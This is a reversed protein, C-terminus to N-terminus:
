IVMEREGAVESLKVSYAKSVGDDQMTIGYLVDAQAMTERNHSIVICQTAGSKEKLISAFRYSNAEDLAADVEDLVLFPPQQVELIALLLALSTLAKEGGSLLSLHQPKKGPPHAIIEVGAVLETPSPNAATPDAPADIIELRASGGEFLRTFYQRFSDNIVTFQARFRLHMTATLSRTLTQLRQQTATIDALQTTISEYRAAVEEYEQLALPDIEGLAALRAALGQIEEDSPIHVDHPAPTAKIQQLFNNGKERVITREIDALAATAQELAAQAASGGREAAIENTRVNALAERLSDRGSSTELPLLKLQQRLNIISPDSPPEGLTFQALREAREQEIAQLRAVAQLPGALQEVIAEAAAVAAQENGSEELAAALQQQISKLSDPAPSEGRIFQDIVEQCRKLLRHPSVLLSETAVNARAQALGAEAQQRERTITALRQRLEEQESVAHEFNARQRALEQEATELQRQLQERPSAPAAHEVSQLLEQEVRQRETAAAAIAAQCAQLQEQLQQVTVWAHHWTGHLWAAFKTDHEQALAQREEHRAIQRKLVRLRPALEQQITYLEHADRIALQLKRQAQQLKLQLSKIGTAEDFLERRGAPSASLYRDVTGQSIVTYSKTGIGAEALLQQVDLLRVPESNILYQSEGSRDIRRTLAVEAAAIPLRGSENSLTLTVSAHGARSRAPSGAFIVDESKKGRLTKLSQEGLVWRIAEALNSNHVIVNNAVFNHHGKISLDYVWGRHPIREVAIIEDWVIDSRALRQLHDIVPHTEATRTSFKQLVEVVEQLGRRTVMCRGENYAALRPYQKRLPKVKIGARKLATRIVLTMNPLCDALTPGEKGLSRVRELMIQKDGIFTLLEGLRRVNDKGSVVVTYYSRKVKKITNRAAKEQQRITAFVNFRLLLTTLQEALGRSATTYEISTKTKKQDPSQSSQAYGDGQYLASLFAKVINTPAVLIHPPITKERSPTAVGLGYYRALIRNLPRSFVIAEQTREKYSFVRATCAFGDTVAQCFDAIVAPDSQTFRVQDTAHAIYGESIMYGLVKAIAPTLSPPLAAFARTRSKLRTIVPQAYPSVSMIKQLVTTAVSQQQTATVSSFQKVSVGARRALAPLKGRGSGASQTLWAELQVSYPVYLNDENTFSTLTPPTFQSVPATVVPLTHPLAIFAGAILEEARLTHLEGQQLSFFPHYHTTEIVRGTRTKIRLLFGPSTRKIFAAVRRQEMRLTRPNLSLVNINDPNATTAVGDDFQQLSRQPVLAQEVLDEITKIEGNGLPICTKGDVCKGSGNPGIVATLGDSLRFTTKHAFSKFGTLSIDLLKMPLITVQLRYSTIQLLSVARATSIM